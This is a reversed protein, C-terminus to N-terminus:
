RKILGVAALCSIYSRLDNEFVVMCVWKERLPSVMISVQITTSRVPITISSAQPKCSIVPSSSSKNVSISSEWSRVVVQNVLVQVIIVQSSVVQVVTVVEDFITDVGSGEGKGGTLFDEQDFHSEAWSLRSVM